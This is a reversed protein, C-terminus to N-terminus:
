NNEPKNDASNRCASHCSECGNLGGSFRKEVLHRLRDRLEEMDVSDIVDSMFAQMLMKRAEPEPIGRAQM